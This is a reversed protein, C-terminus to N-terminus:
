RTGRDRCPQPLTQGTTLQFFAACARARVEDDAQRVIVALERLQGIRDDPAGKNLFLRNPEALAALLEEREAPKQELLLSARRRTDPPTKSDQVLGSLCDAYGYFGQALSLCAATGLEGPERALRELLEATVPRSALHGAVGRYENLSAALAASNAGPRLTLLLEAMRRGTEPTWDRGATLKVPQIKGSHIALTYPGDDGIARLGGADATLYFLYRQGAVAEFRFKHFPNPTASGPSSEFYVFTVSAGTDGRLVEEVAVSVRRPILDLGPVAASPRPPGLVDNSTVVGALVVPALRQYDGRASWDILTGVLDRLCPESRRPACTCLSVLTGCLVACKALFSM